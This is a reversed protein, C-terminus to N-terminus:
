HETKSEQLKMVIKRVISRPFFGVTTSLFKNLVGHVAILDGNMFAKYGYAAVDKSTPIKMQTMLPINQVSAAQQFGSETPGPCLATIAIGTNKLEEYLGETFSLVYSKTAYYVTMLPGPQFAATSAVNLIRGKQNKKMDNLFLRTLETLTTINLHIMETIKKIDSNIFLGHNGFGANNVLNEVLWNNKKTELYLKEASGVVSLDLQVVEARISFKKELDAKLSELKDISRAVLILNHGNLAFEYALEYGIGSSAGTILTYKM